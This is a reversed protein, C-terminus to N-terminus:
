FTLSGSEIGHRVSSRLRQKYDPIDEPNAKLDYDHGLEDWLEEETALKGKNITSKKKGSVKGLWEVM